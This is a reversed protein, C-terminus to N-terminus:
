PKGNHIRTTLRFWTLERVDVKKRELM